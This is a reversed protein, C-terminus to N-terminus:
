NGCRRQGMKSFTAECMMVVENLSAILEAQATIENSCDVFFPFVVKACGLNCSTSYGTSCTEDSCCEQNVARTRETLDCTGDVFTGHRRKAFCYAGFAADVPTAAHTDITVSLHDGASQLQRRHSGDRSFATPSIALPHEQTVFTAVLRANCPSGSVMLDDADCTDETADSNVVLLLDPLPVSIQSQHYM